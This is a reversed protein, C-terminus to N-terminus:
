LEFEQEFITRTMPQAIVLGEGGLLELPEGEVQLWVAAEPDISTATYIVQGLRGIMSASGGGETFDVSLNIFIEDGQIKQSIVKTNEPLASARDGDPKTEMLETMLQALTEKPNEKTAPMPTAVLEFAEGTDELWYVMPENVKQPLTVTETTTEGNGTDTSQNTTEEDCGVLILAAIAVAWFAGFKTRSVAM